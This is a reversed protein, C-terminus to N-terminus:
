NLIKILWGILLVLFLFIPTMKSSLEPQWNNMKKRRILKFLRYPLQFITLMYLSIGTANFNAASHLDFQSVSVFSRTLGCSPCDFRSIHKIMCFNPIIYKQNIEIFCNGNDSIQFLVSLFIILYSLMWIKADKNM